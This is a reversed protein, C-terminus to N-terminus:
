NFSLQGIQIMLDRPCKAFVTQPRTTFLIRNNHCAACMQRVQNMKTQVNTPWSILFNIKTKTVNYQATDSHATYQQNDRCTQTSSKSPKTVSHVSNQFWIQLCSLPRHMLARQATPWWWSNYSPNNFQLLKTCFKPKISTCILGEKLEGKGDEEM